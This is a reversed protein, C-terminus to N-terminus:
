HHQAPTYEEKRIGLKGEKFERAWIMSPIWRSPERTRNEKSASYNWVGYTLFGIATFVVATNAKWNRPNTWWGGAPTWVDKPVPFQAGGGM